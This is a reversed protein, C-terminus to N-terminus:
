PVSTGVSSKVLTVDGANISGNVNVDTRFNGAGVAMGVQTKTQTVDGANVTKNGNTDGKLVSMPVVINGTTSGDNVNNLTVNITQANTVGTLNVTITNGAVVPSGSVSGTGSTVSAGGVGSIPNVFTVVIKHDTGAGQGNRCEVGPTGSLPLPVDFNNAGHTKRSVASTVAPASQCCAYGGTIVVSDVRWGAHTVSSDSGMRWQLKVPQGIGSPPLNVTTTVFGGSVGSWNSCVGAPCRDALLPNSFGTSLSTHNYGGAVFSGGAAVIDQFAGGNISVELVGADFAVTTTSEELDYNMRCTMQAPGSYMFTPTSIRNDCATSPDQTFLANPASDAVPTPTGSNSTTWLPATGTPRTATWNVPLTGAAVSDFNESFTVTQVGMTFMFTVNGLDNAGDQLHVTGTLTGGCSGSATFTFTKCVAAGGAILVGYNQPASPNTVGGSTQLTGVLNSTNLTGFNQLCVNVTVTEGPDIVGNGPSCSETQLTTGTTGVVATPTESGNYIVLAYDQDLPNGNGPVGDGAINTATVKVTYTGSVGAPIFVSEFNDKTDASGGTVSNAGTFVNGKYTNGGVTVELDLNNIYANGSTPGPPETWALAVRFPKANSGVSGSITRVQGSATFLDGPSEDHIVHASAFVDFFTNLNPEGMGQSNSPLTDNAGVGNLYRSSIQLLAKNL